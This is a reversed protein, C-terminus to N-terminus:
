NVLKCNYINIKGYDLTQPLALLSDAEGAFIKIPNSINLAFAYKLIYDSVTWLSASISRLIALIPIIAKGSSYMVMM